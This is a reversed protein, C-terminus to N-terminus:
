SQPEALFALAKDDEAHHEPEAPERHTHATGFHTNPEARSPRTTHETAVLDDAETRHAVLPVEAPTDPLYGAPPHVVYPPEICDLQLEGRALLEADAGVFRLIQNRGEAGM